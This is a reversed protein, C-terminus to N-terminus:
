RKYVNFYLSSNFELESNEFLTKIGTKDSYYKVEKGISYYVFDNTYVIDSIKNTSFIHTLKDKNQVNARYVNYMNEVKKYYYYHGSLNNGVKDIRVYDKNTETTNIIFKKNTNIADNLEIRSWEGLNYYKIKTNINGVEVIAFPDLRFEYQKKNSKDMIYLSKDVVGQIYSDHEIKGNINLESVKNDILNVIYIKDFAYKQDYDATIYYKDVIASLPRNYADSSFLKIEKMKQLNDNSITYIGRYNNISVFHNNVINNVYTTMTEDNKIDVKNDLFQEEKYGYTKIEEVIPALVSTKEKLLSLPKQVGDELCLLDTLNREGIFLPFICKYQNIEYYKITKLIKEAGYLNDFLQINFISDDKTIELYYNNIEDKTNSTYVEKIEFKTDNDYVVYNNNHGTGFYNFGIQFLIYLTFLVLVTFTLRRMYIRWSYHNYLFDMNKELLLSIVSYRKQKM